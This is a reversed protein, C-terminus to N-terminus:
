LHTFYLQILFSTIISVLFITIAIKSILISGSKLKIFNEREDYDKIYLERLLNEDRLAKRIRFVWFVCVIEIGLTIGNIFGLTSDNISSSHDKLITNGLALFILAFGIFSVKYKININKFFNILYNIILLIFCVQLKDM